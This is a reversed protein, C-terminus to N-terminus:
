AGPAGLITHPPTRNLNQFRSIDRTAARERVTATRFRRCVFPIGQFARRGLRSRLPAPRWLDYM